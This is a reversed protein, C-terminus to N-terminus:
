KGGPKHKIGNMRMQKPATYSKPPLVCWVDVSYPYFSTAHQCQIQNPSYGTSPVTDKYRRLTRILSWCPYASSQPAIEIGTNMTTTRFTAVTSLM